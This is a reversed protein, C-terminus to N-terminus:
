PGWERFPLGSENWIIVKASAPGVLSCLGDGAGVRMRMWMPDEGGVDILDRFSNWRLIDKVRVGASSAKKKSSKVAVSPLPLSARVANLLWHLASLTADAAARSLSRSRKLAPTPLRRPFSAFGASSCSNNSDLDRLLFDKLMPPRREVPIPRPPPRQKSTAGM